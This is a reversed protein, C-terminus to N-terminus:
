NCGIKRRFNRRGELRCCGRQVRLTVGHCGIYRILHFLIDFGAYQDEFVDLSEVGAQNVGQTGYQAHQRIRIFALILGHSCTRSVGRLEFATCVRLSGTALVLLSVWGAQPDPESLYPVLPHIPYGFLLNFALHQGM